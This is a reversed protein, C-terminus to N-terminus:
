KLLSNVGIFANIFPDIHIALIIAITFSFVLIGIFFTLKIIKKAKISKNKYLKNSINFKKYIFSLSYVVLLIILPASTRFLIQWKVIWYIIFIILLINIVERFWYLTSPEIDGKLKSHIEIGLIVVCSFSLFSLISSFLKIDINFSFVTLAIFVGLILILKHYEDIFETLTTYKEKQIEM